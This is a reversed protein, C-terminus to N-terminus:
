EKNVAKPQSELCQAPFLASLCTTFLSLPRPQKLIDSIAFKTGAWARPGSQSVLVYVGAIPPFQLLISSYWIYRRFRQPHKDLLGNM